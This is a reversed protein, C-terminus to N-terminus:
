VRNSDLRQDVAEQLEDLVVVDVDIIVVVHVNEEDVVLAAVVLVDCVVNAKKSRGGQKKM